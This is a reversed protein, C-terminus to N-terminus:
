EGIWKNAEDSKASLRRLLRRVQRPSIGLAKAAKSQKLQKGKVLTLIEFRSLEKISMSIRETM